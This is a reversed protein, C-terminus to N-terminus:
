DSRSPAALLRPPWRARQMSGSEEGRGRPPLPSLRKTGPVLLGGRTNKSQAHKQEARRRSHILNFHYNDLDGHVLPASEPSTEGRPATGARALAVCRCSRVGRRRCGKWSKPRPLRPRYFARAPPERRANRLLSPPHVDRRPRARRARPPRRVRLRRRCHPIIRTGM